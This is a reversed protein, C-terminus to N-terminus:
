IYYKTIKSTLKSLQLSRTLNTVIHQQLNPWLRQMVQIPTLFVEFVCHLMVQKSISSSTCAKFIRRSIGCLTMSFSAM